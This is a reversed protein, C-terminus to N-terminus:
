PHRHPQRTVTKATAPKAFQGSDYNKVVHQFIKKLNVLDALTAREDIQHMGGRQLYDAPKEHHCCIGGREPLGLEIIQAHPFIRAAFRGDTTGGSGDFKADIDTINKVAAHAAFALAAPETYYPLSATDKNAVVTIQKLLHADPHNKAWDPPNDLMDKVWAELSDPTHSPTYRVNWLMEATGPIVASANFNGSTIAVAEFNTNPFNENGDEFRHTNLISIALALARNPNEFAGQYAAHGQVGAVKLTGCLSGRRGTKIHSGLTDQSSPEGVIFADPAINNDRMWELVKRSGNIAAWEEDMTVIMGVRMNAQTALQAASDEIATFFAAVSGKMDTVGRGYLYGDRITGSFPDESWKANDGPPVVDLHGMYCLHKDPTGFTWEIYLNDVPYPWKAHGGEYRLWEVKAGAARAKDALMQLCVQSAPYDKADIATVSAIRVLEQTLTVASDQALDQATHDKKHPQSM